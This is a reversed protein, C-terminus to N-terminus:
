VEALDTGMISGDPLRGPLRGGGTKAALARPGASYIARQLSRRWWKLSPTIYDRWFERNYLDATNAKDYFLCFSEEPRFIGPWAEVGTFDQHINRWDLGFGVDHRFTFWTGAFHWNHYGPFDWLGYSRFAGAIAFRNLACDILEPYELNAAAMGDCWLHSAASSNCHTSGKAHIYTTCEDANCSELMELVPLFHATEQLDPVNDVCRFECGLGDFEAQVDAPDCCCSDVAITVIKRGTFVPWNRLLHNVSRRWTGCRRPYCFFALNRIMTQVVVSLALNSIQQAADSTVPLGFV